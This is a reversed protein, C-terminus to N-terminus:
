RLAKGLRDRVVEASAALANNASEDFAPRLFPKAAVFGIVKGQGVVGNAKVRSSGGKVLRHGYEVSAVLGKIKRFPGIKAMVLGGRVNGVTVRLSRKIAGPPLSTSGATPTDVRVPARSQMARLIVGAGAAAAQKAVDERMAQQLLKAKGKMEELGSLSMGMPM